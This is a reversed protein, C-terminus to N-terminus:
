APADHSQLRYPVWCLAIVNQVVPLIANHPTIPSALSGQKARGGQRDCHQMALAVRRQAEALVPMAERIHWRRLAGHLVAMPLRRVYFLVIATRFPDPLAAVVREVPLGLDNGVRPADPELRDDFVDGAEPLYRGEVSGCSALVRPGMSGQRSWIAWMQLASDVDVALM